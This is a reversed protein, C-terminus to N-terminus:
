KELHIQIGITSQFGHNTVKNSNKVDEMSYNYGILLELGVTTNFYIVPGSLISYNNIRGKALGGGLFGVQYNAEILINNQNDTNLFYYRLYPGFIYRQINTSGGGTSTVKGKISSITPKIGIAFKNTIFYGAAISLDIQTYRSNVNYSSSSNNSKYSYFKGSGGIMWIGKTIQSYTNLATLFFSFAFVTKKM